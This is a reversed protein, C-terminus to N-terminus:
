FVGKRNAAMLGLIVVALMGFAGFPLIGQGGNFYVLFGATVLGVVGAAPFNQGTGQYTMVMFVVIAAFGIVIYIAQGPLQASGQTLSQIIGWGPLTSSSGDGTPVPTVAPFAEQPTQPQNADSPTVASTPSVTVTTTAPMFPMSMLTADFGNGSSDAFTTGPTDTLQYELELTGGIYLRIWNTYQLSGNLAGSTGDSVWAWANASDSITMDAATAVQAGDVSAAAGTASNTIQVRHEGTPLAFDLNIASGVDTYRMNGASLVCLTVAAAKSVACRNTGVTDTDWWGSIDFEYDTGPELGANDATTVGAPGSFYQHYTLDAVSGTAGQTYLTYNLQSAAPIEAALGFWQATEGWVQGLLPSVTSAGYSLLLRVWYASPTGAMSGALRTWDNNNFTLTYQQITLGTSTFGVTTPSQSPLATWHAANAPNCGSTECYFAEFSYSGAGATTVNFRLVQSRHYLGIMIADGTEPDGDFVPVDNAAGSNAETTYNAYTVVGGNIDALWYQAVAIAETGPMYPQEEGGQILHADLATDSLYSTDMMGQTSLKVPWVLNTKASATTNAVAIPTQAQNDGPEYQALAAGAALTFIVLVALAVTLRM